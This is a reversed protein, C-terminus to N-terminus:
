EFLELLEAHDPVGRPGEFAVIDGVGGDVFAVRECISHAAALDHTSLVVALGADAHSRVSRWIAHASLPDLNATPEDLLLLKPSMLLARVLSVKQRMGSSYTSVPRELEEGLQLDAILPAAKARVEDASLGYLGGFFVLNEWGDLLPYLGPEATILGVVGAADQALEHVPEGDLLVEGSEPEILGAMLLLLLSKGGGNPGVLGVVEGASVSLDVERIGAEGYTRTLARAEIM